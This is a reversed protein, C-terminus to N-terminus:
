PKDYVCRQDVCGPDPAMCKPTSYGCQAAYDTAVCLEQDMAALQTAFEGLRDARIAVGCTGQCATTTSAHACDSDVTCTNAADILGALKQDLAAKMDECTPGKAWATCMGDECAVKPEMCGPTAYGCHDPYNTAKCLTEDLAALGAQFDDKRAFNVAYGCTGQCSTDAWVHVCESSKDCTQATALLANVGDNLAQMTAQCSFADPDADSPDTDVATSDGPTADAPPVDQPPAADAPADAPAADAEADAATMDSAVGDTPALSSDAVDNTTAPPAAGDSQECAALAVVAAFALAIRPFTSSPCPTARTM